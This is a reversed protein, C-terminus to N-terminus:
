SRRRGGEADGRGTEGEAKYGDRLADCRERMRELVSAYARVHALNQLQDPDSQLDHLFEYDFEFYRAYVFRSGRVGEWKPILSGTDVLHEAFFDTRWARTDVGRVRPLLSQGQYRAPTAVGALDLFTPALDVNLVLEQIVRGRKDALLRPDSIILPVRMSEEYHSWKGAFGRDGMYYGNDGSYVVVTNDSLGKDDLAKRVRGIVRDIGSIMRFYARMNTEYKEPTDWRWFFRQRNLSEKLFDPQRAYIAPDALRPPPIAVDDYMGNVAKPWPFHGVGPRRDRDEAHSANFWLNLCFPQRSPQSQIFQVAADGILETEHRLTGDPQEKFYPGRGIGKYADFQAPRDYEPPMKADWKGFFGTRYGAARLMTPYITSAADASVIDVRERSGHSRSWMGTLISARSVWCISTTVFANEFRVGEAALRDVNPTLLIPHGACGLTDNRQDDVLFFVLNPRTAAEAPRVTASFAALLCIPLVLPSKFKM